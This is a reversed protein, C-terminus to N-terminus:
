SPGKRESRVGHFKRREFLPPREALLQIL